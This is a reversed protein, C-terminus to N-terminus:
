TTAADSRKMKIRLLAGLAYCVPTLAILALHLPVPEGGKGQAIAYVGISVCLWSALVGNLLKHQKAISAAILGGLFSCGLGIALQAAHFGLDSHMASVLAAQLQDRPLQALGRTSIVYIGLPIGLIGSLVVDSVGGVVVALVSVNRM